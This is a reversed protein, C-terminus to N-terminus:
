SMIAVEYYIDIRGLEIAWRLIGILQWYRSAQESDLEASVDTEPRYGSPLPTKGQRKGTRLEHGDERLLDNVTQISSKVYQNSSISWAEKGSPLQYKSINAGLYLEPPKVSGEKLEYTKGLAEMVVELRHSVCLVDDVYVLLLEYYADGNQKFNRRIYVDPDVMTDKFGLEVISNSFMARWSAGASKLGYLARKLIMAKGADEGCEKVAEFWIKERCPANLYANGIDCYLIDLDNLAAILFALRVSDRSVV